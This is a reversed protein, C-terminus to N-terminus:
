VGPDLSASDGRGYLSAISSKLVSLAAPIGSYLAVEANSILQHANTVQVAIYVGIVVELYTAAMREATDRLWKGRMM